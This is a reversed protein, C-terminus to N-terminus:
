RGNRREELLFQLARGEPDAPRPLTWFDDSLPAIPPRALGAKVLEAIRADEQGEGTMPILKAVPRGRDTVVIEEGAKVAELYESLRAKLSTIPVRKM